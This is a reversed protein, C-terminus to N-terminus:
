KIVHRRLCRVSRDDEIEAKGRVGRGGTERKSAARDRQMEGPCRYFEAEKKITKSWKRRQYAIRGGEWASRLLGVSKQRRGRGESKEM